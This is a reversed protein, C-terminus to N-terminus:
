SLGCPPFMHEHASHFCRCCSSLLYGLWLGGGQEEEPVRSPTWPAWALTFGEGQSAAWAASVQLLQHLVRPHVPGSRSLALRDLPKEVASVCSTCPGRQEWDLM